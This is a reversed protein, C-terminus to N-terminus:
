FPKLLVLLLIAAVFGIVLFPSFRLFALPTGGSQMRRLSGAQM